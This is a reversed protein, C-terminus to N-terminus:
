EIKELFEKVQKVRKMSDYIPLLIEKVWQKITGGTDNRWQLYRQVDFTFAREIGLEKFQVLCKVGNLGEMSFSKLIITKGSELEIEKPM